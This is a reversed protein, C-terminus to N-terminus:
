DVGGKEVDEEEVFAHVRMVAFAMRHFREQEAPQEETSARSGHNARAPYRESVARIHRATLDWSPFDRSQTKLEAAKEVDVILNVLEGGHPPILHSHTTLTDL